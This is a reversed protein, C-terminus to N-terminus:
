PRLSAKSNIIYYHFTVKTTLSFSFTSLQTIFDLSLRVSALLLWYNGYHYTQPSLDWAFDLFLFEFPPNKEM